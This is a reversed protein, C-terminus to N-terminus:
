RKFRGSDRADARARRTGDQAPPARRREGRGRPRADAASRPPTRRAGPGGKYHPRRPACSSRRRARRRRRRPGRLARDLLKSLRDGTPSRRRRLLVRRQAEVRSRLRAMQQHAWETSPDSQPSSSSMSSGESRRRESRRRRYQAREEPLMRDRRPAPASGPCAKGAGSASAAGARREHATSAHRRSPM